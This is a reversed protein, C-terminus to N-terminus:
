DVWNNQCLDKFDCFDCLKSPKKEWSINDNIDKSILDGYNIIEEETRTIDEDSIEWTKYKCKHKLLMYSGTIKVADPFEAKIILAYVYLQFPTLYRPDKSTKYDVVHYHGDSIKDIRDIFGRVIYDGVPMLFSKEVHLVNPLGSYKIVNLYDQLIEKVVAHEKGIIEEDFESLAALMCKKMLTSHESSPLYQELQFKHFKELVLHVYSGIELHDWKVKEIPPKELYQYWYKKPCKEYTGMSSVSMKLKQVELSM